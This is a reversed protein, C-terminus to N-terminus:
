SIKEGGRGGKKRRRRREEEEKNTTSVAELKSPLHGVVKVV